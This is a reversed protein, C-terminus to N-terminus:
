RFVILLPKGTKKSEAYGANIDDYIWNGVLDVDQLKAKLDDKTYGQAVARPSASVALLLAWAGLVTSVQQKM